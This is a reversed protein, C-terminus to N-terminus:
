APGIELSFAGVKPKGGKTRCRISIVERWCCVWRVNSSQGRLLFSFRQFASLQFWRPSLPFRFGPTNLFFPALFLFIPVALFQRQGGGNTRRINLHEPGGSKARSVGLAQSEAPCGNEWFPFM